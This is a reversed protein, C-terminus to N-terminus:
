CRWEIGALARKMASEFNPQQGSGPFPVREASVNLGADRLPGPVLDCVTAKICIVYDPALAGARAVLEPV